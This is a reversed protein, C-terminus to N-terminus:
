GGKHKIITKLVPDLMSMSINLDLQRWIKRSEDNMDVFSLLWMWCRTSYTAKFEDM